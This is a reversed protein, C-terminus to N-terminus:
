KQKMFFCIAIIPPPGDAKKNAVKEHSYIGSNQETLDDGWNVITLNDITIHTNKLVLAHGNGQADIISGKEGRLTIQKTIVFNGFYQGPTLTLTDGDQSADLFKQLNDTAVVTFEEASIYQSASCM